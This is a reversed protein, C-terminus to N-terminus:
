GNKVDTHALWNGCIYKIFFENTQFPRSKGYLHSLYNRNGEESRGNVARLLDIQPVPEDANREVPPDKFLLPLPGSALSNIM